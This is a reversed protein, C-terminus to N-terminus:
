KTLEEKAISLQNRTQRYIEASSLAKPSTNYQNFTVDQNNTVSAQQDAAARNDQVTDSVVQARSYSGGVSIPATTLMSGIRGADKRVNSLDLVPTITPSLDIDDRILNALDSLSAKLSYIATNGVNEASKSVLVSYKDLGDAMGESSWQGIKFFEKSPSSIGLLSKAADLARQAVSRAMSAVRGVGSLLGGTMGDIIATALNRGAARMEGSRNRITRALANVFKIITDAGKDIVRPMNRDVGRLFEVIVDTATNTVKGINNAVGRLVGELLKLGKDVMKPVHKQMTDLMKSLMKALQDVIKPTNDTIAKILNLLITMIAKIIAGHAKAIATAFAAIGEGIKTMVMPILNALSRVMGVLALTAAGGAAALATLATAFLLVGAGTLLVGTGLLTVAAGFLILTAVVPTLLIGAAVIVLFAGALMTLGKAIEGWSMGAFLKLIPALIALAAAVVILAAAGPLALIMATVAVAIITLSGALVVMAKAIEGWSMDGMKKLADAIDGLALAVILVAAASFVATPPIISLALTIITFAGLMATLGKGIEGWEMQGLNRLEEGIMGMSMAVVLVGAAGLVATPPIVYLAATIITLAGLMATLGKGIEGWSMQGMKQLADAVM